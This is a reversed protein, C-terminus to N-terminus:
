TTENLKRIFEKPSYFDEPVLYYFDCKFMAEVDYDLLSKIDTASYLHVVKECAEEFEKMYQEFTKDPIWKYEQKEADTMNTFHEVEKGTRSVWKGKGESNASYLHNYLFSSTNYLDDTKGFQKYLGNTLYVYLDEIHKSWIFKYGNCPLFYFIDGYIEIEKSDRSVFIGESRAKWGFEKYFLKDFMDHFNKATHTPIRDPRPVIRLIEKSKNIGRYLVNGTKKYVKIIDSCDKAIDDWISGNETLYNHLRM